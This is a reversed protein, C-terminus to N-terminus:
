LADSRCRAIAAGVAAKSVHEFRAAARSWRGGSAAPIEPPRFVLHFASVTARHIVGDGIEHGALETAVAEYFAPHDAPPLVAAASAPTAM